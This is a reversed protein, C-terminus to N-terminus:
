RVIYCYQVTVTRTDSNASNGVSDVAQVYCELLNTQGYQRAVPPNLSVELDNAGITASWMGTQVQNMGKAQWTGGDVRYVVKVGDVGSPDTIDYANITVQNPYTPPQCADNEHWWISGPSVAWRGISPGTTDGPQVVVTVQATAQGGPGLARLTYTTTQAPTVQYTCPMAPCAMPINGPDLYGESVRQWEFSLNVQTGAKVTVSGAVGNAYFYTIIPPQPTATPPLPTSTPPIPTSTPPIRTATPPVPTGTPPLPTSTPPAETSTPTATPIEVGTTPTPEEGTVRLTVPGSQAMGGAQDYTRCHVVYSGPGTTEFTLSTTFYENGPDRNAFSGNVYLEIQSVGGHAFAHCMVSVEGIPVESGDPPGGCWARIAHESVVRSATEQCGALVLASVLLISCLVTSVRRSSSMSEEEKKHVPLSGRGVVLL